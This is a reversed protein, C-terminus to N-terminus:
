DGKSIIDYIQEDDFDQSRLIDIGEEVLQRADEFEIGLMFDMLQQSYPEPPKPDEVFRDQEPVAGKEVRLTALREAMHQIQERLKGEIENHRSEADKLKVDANELAIELKGALHELARSYTQFRVGGALTVTELLVLAVIIWIM